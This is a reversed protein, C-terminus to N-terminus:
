FKSFIFQFVIPLLAACLAGCIGLLANMKTELVAFRAYDRNLMKEISETNNQCEERTVFMLKLDNEHKNLMERVEERDEATM